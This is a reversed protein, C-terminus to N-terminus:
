IVLLTKPSLSHVKALKVEQQSLPPLMQQLKRQGEKAILQTNHRRLLTLAKKLSRIEASVLELAPLEAKKAEEENKM